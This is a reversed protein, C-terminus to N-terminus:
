QGPFIGSPAATIPGNADDANTSTPHLRNGAPDIMTPTVLLVLIRPGESNTPDGDFWPGSAPLKKALIVTSGDPVSITTQADVEELGAQANLRTGKLFIALDINDSDGACTPIVDISLGQKVTDDAFPVANETAIRAQRGSEITVRPGIIVNVNPKNTITNEWVALQETNMYSNLTSDPKSNSWPMVDDPYTIFKTSIMIQQPPPQSNTSLGSSQLRATLIDKHKRETELDSLLQAAKARLRALERRQEADGNNTPRKLKAEASLAALEDAQLKLAAQLDDRQHLLRLHQITLLALSASLTVLIFATKMKSLTLISPSSTHAGALAATICTTAFGGPATEMAHAALTASLTAASAGLGRNALVERLKGLARAVRKQAADESIDLAAGVAALSENRFFRLLLADRDAENLKTMADDLMPRIATWDNEPAPVSDLNEMAQMERRQRRQDKRRQELAQLRVARYLWGALLTKRGLTGAKRALDAFVMQAVDRSAEFDGTQRLAASYVLNAHRRVIEAFASESRHRSYDRLLEFDNPTQM